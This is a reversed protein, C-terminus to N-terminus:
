AVFDIMRTPVFLDSTQDWAMYNDSFFCHGTGSNWKQSWSNRIKWSRNGNVDYKVGVCVLAHGGISTTPIDFVKNPDSADELEQAIQTGFIVPHSARIAAEMDNLRDAGTSTIQYFNEITNDAAQQYAEISPHVFEKSIDYEWVSELCIGISQACLLVDHIFVGNDQNITGEKAHANYNSFLRSVQVVKSPDELGKLIELNDCFANSACSGISGQDSIPTYEPIIFDTPIGGPSGTKVLTSQFAPCNVKGNYPTYNMAYKM